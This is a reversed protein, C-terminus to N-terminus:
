PQVLIESLREMLAYLAPRYAYDSRTADTINRPCASALVASNGLGRAVSLHRPAPYVKAAVQLSTYSGDSQQCTPNLRATVDSACECLVTALDVTSCDRPTSLPFICAYQLDDTPSWEHGNISNAMYGATPAALAEMTAYTLGARPNVSEMMLPEFPPRPPSSEPDGLIVDWTQDATMQAATKYRLESPPAPAGLTDTASQIDQWPVGVIADLLVLSPDRVSGDASPSFLPNPRLASTTCGQPDLDAHSTCLTSEQLARVYREIPYLFDVGFRRKQEFCRLTFSDETSTLSPDACAPDPSCGDPPVAAGCTYCCPDNPNSACVASARFLRIDARGMYPYQNEERMSCDNEDSLLVVALSSDPRLFAARQALITTDIGTPQQCLNTNDQSCPVGEFGAPPEPDVLFRYIAELPMELGCGAEGARDILAQVTTILGGVDRNPNWAVYGDTLGLDAARPLSGLLHAQDNKSADCLPTGLTGSGLSSTIAGVHLDSIPAFRRATGAPCGAAADTVTSENGAADVCPPNVLSNILYPVSANLLDQKDLMSPSDDVVLLLDVKATTTIRTVSAPGGDPM